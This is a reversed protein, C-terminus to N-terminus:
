NASRILQSEERNLAAGTRTRPTFGAFRTTYADGKRVQTPRAFKIAAMFDVLSVKGDDIRKM